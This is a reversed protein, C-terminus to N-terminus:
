TVSLSMLINVCGQTQGRAADEAMLTTPHKTLNQASGGTHCELPPEALRRIDESDATATTLSSLFIICTPTESATECADRQTSAAAKNLVSSAEEIGSEM